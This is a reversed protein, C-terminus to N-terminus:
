TSGTLFARLFVAVKGWFVHRLVWKSAAPETYRPTPSLSRTKVPLFAMVIFGLYESRVLGSGNPDFDLTRITETNITKNKTNLKLKIDVTSRLWLSREGLAKSREGLLDLAQSHGDITAEPSEARGAM